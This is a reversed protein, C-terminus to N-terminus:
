QGSALVELLEVEFILTKSALPGHNAYALKSPLYFEWRAGEQMLQLGEVLGPVLTQVVLESPKGKKETSDFINGDIKKGIYNLRVQDTHKPTKGQGKSLIRYQLGSDLTVVGERQANAQLFAVGDKLTKTSLEGSDVFLFTKPDRLIIKIQAKTLAPRINKRADYMGKLVADPVVSLKQNQFMDGLQYGAAYSLKNLSSTMDVQPNEQKLEATGAACGSIFLLTLVCFWRLM